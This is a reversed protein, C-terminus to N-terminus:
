ASARAAALIRKARAVVPADVMMGQVAAAGSGDAAAVVQEAWAVERERPSFEENIAAVQRPHIAIKGAFGLARAAAAQERLLAEDDLEICPADLAPVERIAAANAVAARPAALAAATPLGGTAATYDVFGFALGALPADAAAIGAARAVGQPTEILAMLELDPHGSAALVAAILELERAHEVKPVLVAAPRASAEALMLVDALGAATAPSNIRVAVPPQGSGEERRGSWAAAHPGALGARAADKGDASVADELDLCIWDAGSSLARELRDIRDAPVFLM